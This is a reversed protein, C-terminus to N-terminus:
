DRVGLSVTSEDARTFLCTGNTYPDQPHHRWLRAPLSPDQRLGPTALTGETLRRKPALPHPFFECTKTVPWFVGCHSLICVFIIDAVVGCHSLICVFIIDAVVGCHSLICVFIIDAM